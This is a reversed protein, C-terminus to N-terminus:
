PRPVFSEHSQETEWWTKFHDIEDILKASWVGEFRLGRDDLYVDASIKQKAYERSSVENISDYPIGFCNLYNRLQEVNGRTTWIVILWGRKKLEQLAEAVGPLPTGFHDDGKWGDYNAIVGDFDVALVRQEPM